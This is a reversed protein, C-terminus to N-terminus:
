LQRGDLQVGIDDVCGAYPLEGQVHHWEGGNKSIMFDKSLGEQRFTYIMGGNQNNGKAVLKYSHRQGNRDELKIIIDEQM